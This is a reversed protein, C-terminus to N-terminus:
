QIQIKARNKYTLQTGHETQACLESLVSTQIWTFFFLITIQLFAAPYPCRFKYVSLLKHIQNLFQKYSSFQSSINETQLTALSQEPVYKKGAKLLLTAHIRLVKNSQKKYVM